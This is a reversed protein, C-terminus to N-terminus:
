KKPSKTDCQTDWQTWQSEHTFFLHQNGTRDGGHFHRSSYTYVFDYPPKNRTKQEQIYGNEILTDLILRFDHEDLNVTPLGTHWESTKNRIRRECEKVYSDFYLKQVKSEAFIEFSIASAFKYDDIKKQIPNEFLHKQSANQSSPALIRMEDTDIQFGKEFRVKEEAKIRAKEDAKAKKRAERRQKSLEAKLKDAEQIKVHTCKVTESIANKLQM